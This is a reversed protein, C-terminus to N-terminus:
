FLKEGLCRNKFQYPFFEAMTTLCEGEGKNFLVQLLCSLYETLCPNVVLSNLYHLRLVFPIIVKELIRNLLSLWGM